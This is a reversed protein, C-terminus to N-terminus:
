KQGKKIYWLLHCNKLIGIGAALQPTHQFPSQGKKLLNSQLKGQSKTGAPVYNSRYEKKGNM